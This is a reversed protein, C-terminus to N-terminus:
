GSGRADSLSEAHETHRAKEDGHQHENRSAFGTHTAGTIRVFSATQVRTRLQNALIALVDGGGTPAGPATGHQRRHTYRAIDGLVFGAILAGQARLPHGAADAIMLHDHAAGTAIAELRAAATSATFVAAAACGAVLRHRADAVRAFFLAALRTGDARLREQGTPRSFHFRQVPAQPRFATLRRALEAAIHGDGVLAAG